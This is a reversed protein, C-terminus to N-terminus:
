RVRRRTSTACSTTTVSHSQPVAVAQGHRRDDFAAVDDLRQTIAHEAADHGLRKAGPLSSSGITVRLVSSSSFMTSCARLAGAHLRHQHARRDGAFRTEADAGRAVPAIQRAAMEDVDAFRDADNGRLRDTLRTRLQRHTREVDTTRRRTRRRDVVHLDLRGARELEVVQLCDRVAPWRTATDREPSNDDHIRVAAFALAVLHRVARDDVDLIAGCDLGALRNGLPIRMRM